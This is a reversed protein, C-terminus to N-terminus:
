FREDNDEKRRWSSPSQEEPIITVKYNESELHHPKYDRKSINLYQKYEDKFLLPIIQKTTKIEVLSLLPIRRQFTDNALIQIFELPTVKTPIKWTQYALFSAAKKANKLSNFRYIPAAPVNTYYHQTRLRVWHSKPTNPTLNSGINNTRYDRPNKNIPKPNAERRSRLGNTYTAVCVPEKRNAYLSFKNKEKPNFFFGYKQFYLFTSLELIFPKAEDPPLLYALAEQYDLHVIPQHSSQNM